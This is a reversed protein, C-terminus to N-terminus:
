RRFVGVVTDGFQEISAMHEDHSTHEFQCIFDTVGVAAIKRVADAIEAGSGSLAGASGSPWTGVRIGGQGGPAALRGGEVAAPRMDVTRRLTVHVSRGQAKALTRVRDGMEVLQELPADDAHWADGLTAARKLAVTGYGGIWLPPGGAQAPRPEVLVDRFRYFEGDFQPDPSQWIAKMVAIAEDMRRGRDAFGVQLAKFEDEMWGAGVGLVVRGGSLSDLTAVQRAVLRPDRQPLVLVSTGLRLRRTLGAVYALTTVAEYLNGYRPKDKPTM